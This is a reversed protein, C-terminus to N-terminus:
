EAPNTRPRMERGTPDTELVSEHLGAIRRQTPKGTADTEVLAWDVNALAQEEVSPDDLKYCISFLLQAQMGRVVDTLDDSSAGLSTLRELAKGVGSYPQGPHQRSTQIAQTIWEDGDEPVVSRWAQRLFLFRHLQNIGEDIQSTAWQRPQRAGAERFLETLEEISSAQSAM